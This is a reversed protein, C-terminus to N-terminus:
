EGCMTYAYEQRLDGDYYSGISNDTYGDYFNSFICGSWERFDSRKAGGDHYQSFRGVLGGCISVIFVSAFIIPSILARIKKFFVRGQTTVTGTGTEKAADDGGGGSEGDGESEIEDRGDVVEDDNGVINGDPSVQQDSYSAFAM